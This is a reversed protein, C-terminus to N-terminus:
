SQPHSDLFTYKLAQHKMGGAICGASFVILLVIGSLSYILFVASLQKSAHLFLLILFLLKPSLLFTEYKIGNSM